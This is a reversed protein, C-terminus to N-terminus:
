EETYFAVIAKKYYKMSRLAHHLFNYNILM